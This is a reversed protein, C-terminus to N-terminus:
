VYRTSYRSWVMTTQDTLDLDFYTLSVVTANVNSAFYVSLHAPAYQLLMDSLVCSLFILVIM